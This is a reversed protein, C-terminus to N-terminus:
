RNARIERWCELCVKLSYLATGVAVVHTLVYVVLTTDVSGDNTYIVRISLPIMIAVIVGTIIAAGISALLAYVTRNRDYRDANKDLQTRAFGILIITAVGTPSTILKMLEEARHISDPKAL